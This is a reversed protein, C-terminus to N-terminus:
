GAGRRSCRRCELPLDRETSPSEPLLEAAKEKGLARQKGEERHQNDRIRPCAPAGNSKKRREVRKAVESIKTKREKEEDLAPEGGREVSKLADGAGQEEVGCFM